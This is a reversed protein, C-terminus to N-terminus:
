LRFTNRKRNQLDQTQIGVSDCLESPSFDWLCLTKRRRQSYRCSYLIHYM